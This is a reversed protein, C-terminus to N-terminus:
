YILPGQRGSHNYIEEEKKAEEKSCTNPDGNERYGKNKKSRAQTANRPLIL